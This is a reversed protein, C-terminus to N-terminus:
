RPVRDRCDLLTIADVTTSLRQRAASSQNRRGRPVTDMRSCGLSIEAAHAWRWRQTRVGGSQLRWSGSEMTSARGVHTQGYLHQQVVRYAAYPSTRCPWPYRRVTAVGFAPHPSIRIITWYERGSTCRKAGVPRVTVICFSACMIGSSSVRRDAVVPMSSADEWWLDVTLGVDYTKRRQRGHIERDAVSARGITFISYPTRWSPRIAISKPVAQSLQSCPGWPHRQFCVPDQRNQSM